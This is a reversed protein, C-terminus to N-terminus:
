PLEGFNDFYKDNYKSVCRGKIKDQITMQKKKHWVVFGIFSLTCWICFGILKGDLDDCICITPFMIMALVFQYIIIM